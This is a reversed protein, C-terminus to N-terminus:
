SAPQAAISEQGPHTVDLTRFREPRSGAGPRQLHDRLIALIETDDQASRSLFPREPINRTDDGIQHTAGYVRDTGLDLATGGASVQDRLLDNLYGELVLIKGANLAPM